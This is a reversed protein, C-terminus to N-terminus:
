PYIGKLLKKAFNSVPSPTGLRYGWALSCPQPKSFTPKCAGFDGFNTHCNKTYIKWLHTYERLRNKCFKAHPPLGLGVGKHWIDGNKSRFHPSVAGL